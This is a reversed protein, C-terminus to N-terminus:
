FRFPITFYFISGKEKESEVWLKGDLMEVYANSISLGLGAGQLAQKDAVGAQVFREFIAKQREKVIGIGTDKVFFELYEDKKIYGFEISGNETYKFANKVLNSIIVLIKERDTKIVAEKLQLTKRVSLGIGKQVAQPNYFTYLYDLLENINTESISVEMLGSEIKSISIIDNIINLMRAGSKEIFGIYKHMEEDSLGPEKLLEAFGLIGNMPTRIEHSMNALFASKLRDNEEAQEKAQILEKEAQKRETIDRVIHILGVVHNEGNLRPIARIEMFIGLNPEFVEFFGPLGNLLCKCSPCGEPPNGTGHFYSYCKIKLNKELDPLKLLAKGAKNSRIINYDLDHITIADTISDFVDEWERRVQFVIDEVRKYEPTEANFLAQLSENVERLDNLERLLEERTKVQDNM